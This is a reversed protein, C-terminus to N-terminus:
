KRGGLIKRFLFWLVVAVVLVGVIFYGIRAIWRFAWLVIIVALVIVVIYKINKM